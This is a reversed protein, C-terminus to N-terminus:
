VTKRVSKRRKTVKKAAKKPTSKAAKKEAKEDAKMQKKAAAKEELYNLYVRSTKYKNMKKEYQIKAKTNKAVFPARAADDMTNWIAGASKAVAAVDSGSGIEAVISPRAQNLWIFYASPARKPCSAPKKINLLKQKKNFVKKDAIWQAYSKSKVYKARKKEYVAKAKNAPKFFPAKEADTM